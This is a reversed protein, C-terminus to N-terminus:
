PWYCFKFLIPKISSWTAVGFAYQTEEYEGGQGPDIDWLPVRVSFTDIEPVPSTGWFYKITLDYRIGNLGDLKATLTFLASTGERIQHKLSEAPSVPLWDYSGSAPVARKFSVLQRNGDGVLALSIPLRRGQFFVLTPPREDNSRIEAKLEAKEFFPPIPKVLWIPPWWYSTSPKPSFYGDGVADYLTFDWGEHTKSFDTELCQASAQSDDDATGTPSKPGRPRHNAPDLYSKIGEDKGITAVYDWFPTTSIGGLLWGLVLMLFPM